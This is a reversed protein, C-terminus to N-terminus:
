HIDFQASFSVPITTVLFPVQGGANMTLHSFKGDEITLVTQSADFSIGLETIQSILGRCLEQTAEPTLEFRFQATEGTRSFEGSRLLLLGVGAPSLEPLDLPPLAHREGSRELEATGNELYLGVTESLNLIGCEVGFTVDAEIRDLGDLAPLLAELPETLSIPPQTQARQIADQVTQPIPHAQPQQTRADAHLEVQSGNLSFAADVALTQPGDEVTLAASLRLQDTDLTLYYCNEEKTIRGYLVAGVLLRRLQADELELQPLTYARGTDMYLIDGGVYATYDELTLGYIRQGDQDTWFTSATLSLGNVSVAVSQDAADAEAWRELESKLALVHHGGKWFFVGAALLMVILIGTLLKKM